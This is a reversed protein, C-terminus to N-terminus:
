EYQGEPSESMRLLLLSADGIITGSEEAVQRQGLLPVVFCKYRVFSNSTKTEKRVSFGEM